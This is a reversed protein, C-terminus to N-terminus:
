NDKLTALAFALRDSHKYILKDNRTLENCFAGEYLIERYLHRGFRRIVIRSSYCVPNDGGHFYSLNCLFLGHIRIKYNKKSKLISLLEDLIKDMSNNM